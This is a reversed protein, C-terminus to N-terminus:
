RPLSPARTPPWLRRSEEIPSMLGIPNGDPDEVIAFRAGWFADYPPQRERGGHAVLDAYLDDVDRRGATGLGLLTSGGTAGRYGSDWVAAFDRSDFEVRMGDPLEAVAHDPTPTEIPWGLRRYFALTAAMDGVVLNVQSLIAHTM